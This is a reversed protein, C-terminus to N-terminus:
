IRSLVRKIEEKTHAVPHMYIVSLNEVGEYRNIGYNAILIKRLREGATDRDLAHKEDVLMHNDIANCYLAASKSPALPTKSIEALGYLKGEVFMGLLEGQHLRGAWASGLRMTNVEQGRTDLGRTDRFVIPAVYKKCRAVPAQVGFSSREAKNLQKRHKCFKARVCHNCLNREISMGKLSHGDLGVSIIMATKTDTM